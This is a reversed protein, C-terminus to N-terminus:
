RNSSRQQEIKFIRINITTTIKRFVNMRRYRITYYHIVNTNYRHEEEELRTYSKKQLM